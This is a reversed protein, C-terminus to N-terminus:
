KIKSITDKQIPKNYKEDPNDPNDPNDTSNNRNDIYKLYETTCFMTTYSLFYCYCHESLGSLGSLGSMVFFADGL